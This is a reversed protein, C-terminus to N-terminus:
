KSIFPSFIRVAPSTFQVCLLIGHFIYKQPKKDKLQNRLFVNYLMVPTTLIVFLFVVSLLTRTLQRQKRQRISPKVSNQRSDVSMNRHITNVHVSRRLIFYTSILMISLPILNYVIVHVAEWKPFIYHSDELRRYCVFCTRKGIPICDSKYYGNLFLLHFNLTLIIITTPIIIYTSRDARGFGRHWFLFHINMCRDISVLTLYWSSLQLSVFGVFSIFRCSVMSHDELDNQYPDILHKYFLNLNWSYLSCLDAIAVATLYRMTTTERLKSRLLIFITLGNGLSIRIIILIFFM